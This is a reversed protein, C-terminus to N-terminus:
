CDCGLCIDNECYYYSNLCTLLDPYDPKCYDLMMEESCDDDIQCPIEEKSTKGTESYCTVLYHESCEENVNINPQNVNDDASFGGSLYYIGFGILLGVVLTILRNPSKAM